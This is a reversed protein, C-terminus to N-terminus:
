AAVLGPRKFNTQHFLVGFGVRQKLLLAKLRKPSVKNLWNILPCFYCRSPFGRGLRKVLQKTVILFLGWGM